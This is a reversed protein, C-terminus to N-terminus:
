KEKVNDIHEALSTLSLRIQLCAKRCHGPLFSFKSSSQKKNTPSVTHTHTHTCTYTHTHTHACQKAWTSCRCADVHRRKYCCSLADQTLVKQNIPQPEQPTRQFRLSRDPYLLYWQAHHKPWHTRPLICELVFRHNDIWASGGSLDCYSGRTLFHWSLPSHFPSPLYGGELMRPTAQKTSNLLQQGNPQVLAITLMTRCSCIWEEDHYNTSCITTTGKNQSRRKHNKCSGCRHGAQFSFCVQMAINVKREHVTSKNHNNHEPDTKSLQLRHPSHKFRLLSLFPSPQGTHELNPSQNKRKEILSLRNTKCQRQLTQHAQSSHQKQSSWIDEVVFWRRDLDPTVTLSRVFWFFVCARPCASNTWNLGEADTTQVRPM